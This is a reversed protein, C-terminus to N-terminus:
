KMAAQKQQLTPKKGRPLLDDVNVGFDKAKARIDKQNPMTKAPTEPHVDNGGQTGLSNDPDEPAETDGEAEGLFLASLKVADSKMERAEEELRTACALLSKVLTIVNM